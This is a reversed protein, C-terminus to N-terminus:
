VCTSNYQGDTSAPKPPNSQTLRNLIRSSARGDWYEPRRPRHASDAMVERVATALLQPDTGILRNTGDSITIPRETNDRFTLCPIGMVTTEEQIGGSDTIVARAGQQLAIFDLYPMADLLRVRSHSAAPSPLRDLLSRTRPHVPFVVQTTAAIAELASLIGALQEPQDVNAPRHLTVLIYDGDLELRRRIASTDAKPLLRLLTDVM